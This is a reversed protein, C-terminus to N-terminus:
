TRFFGTDSIWCFITCGRDLKDPIIWSNIPTRTVKIKIKFTKYGSSPEIRTGTILTDTKKRGVPVGFLYLRKIQLSLTREIPILGAPPIIGGGSQVKVIFIIFLVVFITFTIMRNTGFPWNFNCIFTHGLEFVTTLLIKRKSLWVVMWVLLRCTVSGEQPVVASNVLKPDLKLEGGVPRVTVIWYSGVRTQDFSIFRIFSDDIIM